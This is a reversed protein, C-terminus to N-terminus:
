EIDGISLELESIRRQLGLLNAQLQTKEQKAVSIQNQLKGNEAKQQQLNRKFDEEVRM